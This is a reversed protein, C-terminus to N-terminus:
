LVGIMILLLNWASSSITQKGPLSILLCNVSATQLLPVHFLPQIMPGASDAAAAAYTRKAIDIGVYCTSVNEKLNSARRRVVIIRVSQISILFISRGM